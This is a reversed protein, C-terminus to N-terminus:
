PTQTVFLHVLKTQVLPYILIGFLFPKIQKIILVKLYFKFHILLYLYLFSEFLFLYCLILAFVKRGESKLCLYKWRHGNFLGLLMPLEANIFVGFGPMHGRLVICLSTINSPGLLWSSSATVSLLPYLKFMLSFLPQLPKLCIKYILDCLYIQREMIGYHHEFFSWFFSLPFFLIPSVSCFARKRNSSALAGVGIKCNLTLPFSYANIKGGTPSM